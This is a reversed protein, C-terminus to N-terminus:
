HQAFNVIYTNDVISVPYQGKAITYSKIGLAACLEGNLPCDEEVLFYGSSFYKEIVADTMSAKNFNMQFSSNSDISATGRGGASYPIKLSEEIGKEEVKREGNDFTVGINKQDQINKEISKQLEIKQNINEATSPLSNQLGLLRQREQELKNAQEIRKAVFSDIAEIQKKVEELQKNLENRTITLEEKSTKYTIENYSKELKILEKNFKMESIKKDNFQKYLENQKTLYIGENYDKAMSYRKNIESIKNKNRITAPEFDEARIIVESNCWGFGSCGYKPRGITVEIFVTVGNPESYKISVPINNLVTIWTYNLNRTPKESAFAFTCSLTMMAVLVLKRM